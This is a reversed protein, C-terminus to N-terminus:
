WPAFNGYGSCVGTDGWANSDSFFRGGDSLKVILALLLFLPSLLLLGVFALLFDYARKIVERM